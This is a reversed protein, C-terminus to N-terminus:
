LLTEERTLPNWIRKVFNMQLWADPDPSKCIQMFMCGGFDACSHDLNYDWYGEEWMKIFRRIDRHTQEHWREIEWDARATIPQQTEYKTKLISIGRILVGHIPFAGLKQAAWNYGTFQSRMDWQKSWSAGLSTTTKDDLLYNGGAFKVIADSRGCYIIPNGTEPHTIELPEAFSFEVARKGNALLLPEDSEGLIYNDFYFELAGCMRERSKASDSPCEYDGYAEILAGLGMAVSDESSMGNEWFSRRAIELGRAFAGGAHLHISPKQPKWHEVYERFGKQPCSRFTSVMSSDFVEPFPPRVKM